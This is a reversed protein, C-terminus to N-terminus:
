TKSDWGAVIENDLTVRLRYRNVGSPYYKWIERMKTALLKREISHPPGLSDALEVATQNRWVREAVMREVIQEPYKSRLYAAHRNADRKERIPKAIAAVSDILATINGMFVSQKRKAM